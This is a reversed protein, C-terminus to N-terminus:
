AIPTEASAEDTPAIYPSEIPADPIPMEPAVDNFFDARNNGTSQRVEELKMVMQAVTINERRFKGQDNKVGFSRSLFEDEYSTLTGDVYTKLASLSDILKEIGMTAYRAPIDKTALYQLVDNGFDLTAEMLKQKGEVDEIVEPVFVDQKEVLKSLLERGVESAQNHIKKSYDSMSM